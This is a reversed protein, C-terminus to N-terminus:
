CVKLGSHPSVKYQSSNLAAKQAVPNTPKMIEERRNNDPLLNKFLPNDGYPNSTLAALQSQLSAPQGQAQAGQAGMAGANANFQNAGFQTNGGLNFSSTGFSTGTGAGFSSTGFSTGTGFSTSGGGFLPKPAGANNNAGFLSGGTNTPNSAGFTSGGFSPAGFSTATGGASTGFGGFAPKAGATNGFLGGTTAGAQQPQGFSFSSSTAPAGFGFSGALFYIM